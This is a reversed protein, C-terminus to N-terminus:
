ASRPFGLRQQPQEPELEPAHFSRAQKDVLEPTDIDADPPVTGLESFRRAAVLVRADFSGVAKNYYDVAKDLSSGVKSFYGTMDSLRKYLEVGLRSVHKANEALAEERWGLHATRLLAILTTPTAPIVGQAVGYEILSPDQELAAQFLSESPVFAVVFEPSTDVHEFYRKKGLKELHTRLHRAHGALHRKRETEDSAEMADLYAALPVKADVVIRRSGPLRV